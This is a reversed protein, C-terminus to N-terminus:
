LPKNIEKDKDKKLESGFKKKFIIVYAIIIGFSVAFFIPFIFPYKTTLGQTDFYGQLLVIPGIIWLFVRLLKNAEAKIKEPYNNNYAMGTGKFAFYLCMAGIGFFMYGFTTDFNGM